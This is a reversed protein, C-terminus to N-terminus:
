PAPWAALVTGDAAVVQATYQGPESFAYAAFTRDLTPGLDNFPIIVPDLGDRLVQLQGAPTVTRPLDALVYTRKDDVVTHIAAFDLPTTQESQAGWSWNIQRQRGIITTSAEITWAESSADIGFSVPLAPTEEAAFRSSKNGAAQFKVGEWEAASIEHVTGAISILQSVPMAAGVTVIIGDAVWSAISYGGEDIVTGAVASHGDVSFPTIHDLLFRLAIERSDTDGGAVRPLPQAVTVVLPGGFEGSSGYVVQEVPLGRIALRPPVASIMQHDSAFWEDTFAPTLSDTRLSEALRVLNDDSWGFAVITVGVHRDTTFQVVAHGGATHSMAMSLGGAQIRLSDAAFVPSAGQDTTVSFWSGTTASAGPTAWLQYNALGSDHGFQQSEALQVAFERPPDAAYFSRTQSALVTSTTPVTTASAIAAGAISTSTGTVRAPKAPGSTSTAVGYGILGVLAAAAVPGVWRPGDTDHVTRARQRDGFASSDDELIEIIEPLQQTKM